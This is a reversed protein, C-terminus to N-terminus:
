WIHWCSDRKDKYLNLSFSLSSHKEKNESYIIPSGDIERLLTAIRGNGYFKLDSEGLPQMNRIEEDSIITKEDDAENGQETEIEYLCLAEREKSNKNLSILMDYDNDLLLDYYSRHMQELAEKLVSVDMEKLDMAYELDRIEFPVEAHFTTDLRLQDVKHAMNMEWTFVSQQGTPGFKSKAENRFYVMNLKLEAELDLHDGQHPIVKITLKQEGSKLISANVEPYIAGGKTMSTDNYQCVLFDNLLIEYHCKTHNVMLRYAIKEKQSDITNSSPLYPTSSWKNMTQTCSLGLLSLLLFNFNRKLFLRAM